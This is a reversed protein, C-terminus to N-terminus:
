ISITCFLKIRRLLFSCVIVCTISCISSWVMTVGSYSPPSLMVLANFVPKFRVSSCHTLLSHHPLTVWNRYHGNTYNNNININHTSSFYLKHIKFYVDCKQCFFHMAPPAILYKGRRQWRCKTHIQLQVRCSLHKVAPSLSSAVRCFWDCGFVTPSADGPWSQVCGFYCHFCIWRSSSNVQKRYYEAMIIWCRESFHCFLWQVHLQQSRRRCVSSCYFNSSFLTRIRWM